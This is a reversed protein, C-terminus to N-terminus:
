PLELALQVNLKSSVEQKKRQKTSKVSQEKKTPNIFGLDAQLQINYDTNNRRNIAYYTVRRECGPINYKDLIKKM